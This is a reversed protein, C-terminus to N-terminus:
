PGTEFRFPGIKNQRYYAALRVYKEALARLGAREEASLSRVVRAPAGLVLSGPPVQFGQTLLARAGVISQAGVLVGDLLCSGMGVLVEDQVTCAHVIAGHGVTVFNGLVCPLEDALHLVANDQINSSAGIVIRNIDGRLSANFWVSSNDALTVDGVVAAGPAIFVNQGVTPGKLLFSSIQNEFADM